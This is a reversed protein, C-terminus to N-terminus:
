GRAARAGHMSRSMAVILLTSAAYQLFQTPWRGALASLVQALAFVCLLVAAGALQTPRWLLALAGTIEAGALWVINRDGEHGLFLAQVSAGALVSVFVLRYAAMIRAASV